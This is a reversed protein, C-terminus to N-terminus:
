EADKEEVPKEELVPTEEFVEEQEEVPTEAVDEKKEQKKEPVADTQYIAQKLFKIYCKGTSESGTELIFTGDECIEAVVGCIGGVTTVKNGPKVANLTANIEENQKKQANSNIITFVIIIVLMVGIMLWSGWGAMLSNVM